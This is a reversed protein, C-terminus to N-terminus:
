CSSPVVTTNTVWSIFSASCSPWSIMKNASCPRITWCSEGALSTAFGALLKTSSKIPNLPLSWRKCVRVVSSPRVKTTSAWPRGAPNKSCGHGPHGIIELGDQVGQSPVNDQGHGGDKRCQDARDRQPPQCMT